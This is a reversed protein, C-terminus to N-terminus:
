IRQIFNSKRCFTNIGLANFSTLFNELLGTYLNQILKPNTIEMM